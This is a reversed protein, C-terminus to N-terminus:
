NADKAGQVGKIAVEVPDRSDKLNEFKVGKVVKGNKVDLCPIIRIQKM